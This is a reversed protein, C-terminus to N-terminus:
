SRGPWLRHDEDLPDVPWNDPNWMARFERDAEEWEADTWAPFWDKGFGPVLPPVAEEIRVLKMVPKGRRCIVIEEGAEVAGALESLHTKAYHINVSLGM